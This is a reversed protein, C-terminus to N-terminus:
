DFHFDTLKRVTIYAKELSCATTMGELFDGNTNGLTTVGQFFGGYTDSPTTGM